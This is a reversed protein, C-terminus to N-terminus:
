PKIKVLICPCKDLQSMFMNVPIPKTINYKSINILFCYM